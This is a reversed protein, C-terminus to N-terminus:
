ADTIAARLKTIAVAVATAIPRTTRRTAGTIPATTGGRGSRQLLAGVGDIPPIAIASPVMAPNM